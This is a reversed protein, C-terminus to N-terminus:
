KKDIHYVLLHNLHNHLKQSHIENRFQIIHLNTPTEVTTISPPMTTLSPYQHQRQLHPTRKTTTLYPESQISTQVQLPLTTTKNLIHHMHDSTAQKTHMYDNTSTLGSTKTL